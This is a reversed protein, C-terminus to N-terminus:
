FVHGGDSESEQVGPLLKPGVRRLKYKRAEVEHTAHNDGWSESVLCSPLHNYLKAAGDPHDSFM